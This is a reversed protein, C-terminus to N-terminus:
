FTLDPIIAVFRVSFEEANELAVDRDLLVAATRLVIM